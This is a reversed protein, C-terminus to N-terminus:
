HSPVKALEALGPQLLLGSALPRISIRLSDMTLDGFARTFAPFVMCKAPHCGTVDGQGSQSGGGLRKLKGNERELQPLRKMESPMLGAYKKRWNYDTAERIGAKRCVEEVTTGDEAQKLVFAIQAESFKTRKMM